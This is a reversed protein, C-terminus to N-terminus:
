ILCPALMLNLSRFRPSPQRFTSSRELFDEGREGAISLEL